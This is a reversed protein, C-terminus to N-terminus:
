SCSGSRSSIWCNANTSWGSPAATTARAGANDLTFTFGAVNSGTNGQAQIVYGTASQTTCSFSFRTATPLGLNTCANAYSRNDQYYQGLQVAYSTMVGFAESLAGRRVYDTYAPVALASLLALVAMAIMLEILTFGRQRARRLSGAAARWATARGRASPNFPRCVHM